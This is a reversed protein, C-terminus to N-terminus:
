LAVDRAVGRRRGPAYVERGVATDGGARRRSETSRRGYSLEGHRVDLRPEKVGRFCIYEAVSASFTFIRQRAREDATRAGALSNRPGRISGPIFRTNCLRIRM